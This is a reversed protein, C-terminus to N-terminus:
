QRFGPGPLPKEPGISWSKSREDSGGDINSGVSSIPGIGVVMVDQLFRIVEAAQRLVFVSAGNGVWSAQTSEPKQVVYEPFSPAYHLLGTVVSVLETPFPDRWETLNNGM